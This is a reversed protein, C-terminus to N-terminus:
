GVNEILSQIVNVNELTSVDGVNDKKLIISRLVRRMIKGSRTKPLGDCFIIQKPKAYSGLRSSIFNIIESKTKEDNMFSFKDKLTIFAVAREGTIDDPIGIVASEAVYEHDLLTNEMEASGVLHGSINLVDDVRGTVWIFGDEDVTAGDGAFYYKGNWKEWYTKVYREHDNYVGRLMSPFPKVIALFGSNTENGQDDLVKVDYGPLAKSVSGSKYEKDKPTPSIVFAGTETQFWTDMILSKGSGINDRYWQWVEPNLPEGISGLLKISSIDHKKIWESGWKMFIRIATPATYFTTVKYRECLRWLQSKDPYDAAGEYIVQTVGNSLPGYVVYSHGTIWGVDATCFYIDKDFDYDFVKKFTYCVGVLYGGTTHMIGKPKGTTGSTYLIFLPDESDMSEPNCIEEQNSVLDDYWIDIEKNFNIDQNTRKYVLVKEIYPCGMDLTKDVRDKYNIVKGRRLGGDATIILKPKSDDLRNKISQSGIGGFIVSHVAGIRACALMSYIAQPIMPLYIAVRDGKEIGIKKLANALKNVEKSLNYYTISKKNGCEGEWYIAVKHGYGKDIWRDICNYSANLKGGIYWKSYPSKWELIKEFNDIWSICKAQNGWFDEFAENNLKELM